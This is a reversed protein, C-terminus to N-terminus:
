NHSELLNIQPTTRDSEKRVLALDLGMCGVDYVHGLRMRDRGRGFCHPSPSMGQLCTFFVQINLWMLTGWSEHEVERTRSICAESYLSGFVSKSICAELYPSRFVPKSYLSRFVPKRICVEFYLNGKYTYARIYLSSIDLERQVVPGPLMGLFLSLRCNWDGRALLWDYRM